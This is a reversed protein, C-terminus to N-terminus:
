NSYPALLLMDLYILPKYQLVFVKQKENKPESENSIEQQKAIFSGKTYTIRM